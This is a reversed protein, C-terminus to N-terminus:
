NLLPMRDEISHQANRRLTWSFLIYPKLSEGKFKSHIASHYAEQDIIERNSKIGWFHDMGAMIQIHKNVRWVAIISATSPTRWATYGVDTYQKSRWVVQAQIIFKGLFATLMGYSEMFGRYSGGNFNQWGYAYAAYGRVPWANFSIEAALHPITSKGYNRWSNIAVGNEEYIWPQILDDNVIYRAVGEFTFKKVGKSYRLELNHTDYPKLYPNGQVRLWPNTSVDFTALASPDPMTNTLTYSARLMNDRSDSWTVSASGKPKWFSNNKGEVAVSMMQVGASLMYDINRFSHSYTLYLYNDLENLSIPRDSTRVKNFQKDHTQQLYYGGVISGYPKEGTTYDLIVRYQNRISKEGSLYESLDTGIVEELESKNTGTAWNYYAFASFVSKDKFTHDYYVAGLTGGWDYLSHTSGFLNEIKPSTMDGSKDYTGTSYGYGRDFSQLGKITVAFYNLTDPTFKVTMEGDWGLNRSRNYGSRDKTATGLTELQSYSTTNHVTYDGFAKGSIAWKDKGFEFSGGALGYSPILGQRTRLESYVYFPTDRKLRINLIRSYGMHLFKADAVEILEVSDIFKPDIPDIGSNVLKGDILILPTEGNRTTITKSALNAVLLPIENLAVYPDGSQKAKDSLRFIRGNATKKSTLRGTVELEQLVTAIETSDPVNRLSDQPAAFSEAVQATSITASRAINTTVCVGFLLISLFLSINLNHRQVPM